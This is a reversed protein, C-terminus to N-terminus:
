VCIPPQSITQSKGELSPFIAECCMMDLLVVIANIM